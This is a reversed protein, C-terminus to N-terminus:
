IKKHKDYEEKIRKNVEKEIELIRSLEEVIKNEISWGLTPLVKSLNTKMIFPLNKGESIRYYRFGKIKTIEGFFLDLKLIFNEDEIVLGPFSKELFSSYKINFEKSDM